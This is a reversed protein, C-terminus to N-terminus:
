PTRCCSIRRCSREPARATDPHLLGLMGERVAFVRLLGTVDTAAPPPSAGEAASLSRGTEIASELAGTAGLRERIVRALRPHMMVTRRDVSYLLLAGCLCDDIAMEVAERHAAERDAGDHGAASDGALVYLASCPVAHAPQVAVATLLREILGASDDFVMTEFALALAADAGGSGLQELYGAYDLRRSDQRRRMRITAAAVALGLPLDGLVRAVADAGAEDGLQARRRLYAVSEVRAFPEVVIREGFQVTSSSSEVVIVEASHPPPLYRAALGSDGSNDFVLLNPGPRVQLTAYLRRM